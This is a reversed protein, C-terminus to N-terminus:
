FNYGELLYKAVSADWLASGRLIVQEILFGWVDFQNGTSSGTNVPLLMALM